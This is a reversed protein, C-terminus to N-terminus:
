ERRTEKENREKKNERKERNDNGDHIEEETYQLIIIMIMRINKKMRENGMKIM